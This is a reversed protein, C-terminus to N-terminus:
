PEIEAALLVAARDSVPYTKDSLTGAVSDPNATDFVLHWPLDGPVNFLIQESSANLLLATVEIQGSAGRCARRLCLVHASHNDWDGPALELGREDWWSQETIGSALTATGLYRDCRLSAYRQRAQTLKSLFDILSKGRPSRMLTWDLWTLENDQCYANNNGKQTRGCEDGMQIMPTGLSGLLAALMARKVGERYEVIVPDDTPGEAGYNTSLNDATGDRNDEGNAENYKGEYSVLDELTAGDHCAIFNVSARPKKRRTDFLDGSGGLRAALEPRMGDDGRWYRRMTDRYRDNWESFGPPFNGLQYGGPGVDWPECILKLRSLLPDQRIAHFFGSQQDFGWPQRGLTLGLDFRFGDIRYATAWYRL